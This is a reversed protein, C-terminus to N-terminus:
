DDISMEELLSFIQHEVTSIKEAYERMLGGATHLEDVMPGRVITTDSLMKDFKKAFVRHRKIFEERLEVLNRLRELKNNM